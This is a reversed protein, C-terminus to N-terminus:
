LAFVTQGPGLGARPKEGRVKALVNKLVKTEVIRKGHPGVHKRLEEFCATCAKDRGWERGATYGSQPVMWGFGRIIAQLDALKNGTWAIGLGECIQKMYHSKQEDREARKSNQFVPISSESPTDNKISDPKAIVLGASSGAEQAPGGTWQSTSQHNNHGGGPFSEYMNDENGYARASRIENNLTSPPPLVSDPPPDM